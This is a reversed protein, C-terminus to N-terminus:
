ESMTVRTSQVIIVLCTCPLYIFLTYYYTASAATKKQKKKIKPESKELSM